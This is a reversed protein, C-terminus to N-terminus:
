WRAITTVDNNGPGPIRLTKGLYRVEFRYYLDRRSPESGIILKWVVRTPVGYIPITYEGPFVLQGAPMPITTNLVENGFVLARIKLETGGPLIEGRLVIGEEVGPIVPINVDFPTPTTADDVVDTDTQWLARGNPDYIVVNRDDQVVMWAVRKGDTGTNFLANGEGYIVFNGDDQLIASDVNRGYTGSSWFARNDSLRYLVLNGDEQMIFKYRGNPSMLYEGPFLRDGPRLRDGKNTQRLTWQEGAQYGIHQGTLQRIQHIDYMNFQPFQQCYIPNVSLSNFGNQNYYNRNDFSSNCYPCRQFYQNHYNYM